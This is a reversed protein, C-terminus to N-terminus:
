YLTLPISKSSFAVGFSFRNDSIGGYSSIAGYRVFDYRGFVSVHPLVVRSYNGSFGSTNYAYSLSNAISNLRSWYGGFSINSRQYSRSYGGGLYQTRSALYYGNGSVISQGGSISFQGRRVSRSLSGGFSPLVATATYPVRAFVDVTGTPTFIRGIPINLLGSVNTHTVGGYASAFWRNHFAHSIGFSVGDVYTNGAGLQYAFYSHSYSGFASTRATIRYSVGGGGSGGTTGVAGAYSFRQLYIGGYAFYSLRRSQQYSVGVSGSLYRTNPSFPNLQINGDTSTQAGLYGTGYLVNGAYVGTNFSWRRSIQRSFSLGLNQNTGSSFFSSTYQSFNGSYSLSLSSKSWIHSASVGGGIVYGFGGNNVNQGSSNLTPSYTDYVANAFAYYNVFNGRDFFESALTIPNLSSSNGGSSTDQSPPPQSQLQAFVSVASLLTLILVRIKVLDGLALRM